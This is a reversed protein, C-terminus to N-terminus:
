ERYLYLLNEREVYETKDFVSTYPFYLQYFYGHALPRLYRYSVRDYTFIMLVLLLLVRQLAYPVKRTSKYIDYSVNVILLIFSPFLFDTMRITLNGYRRSMIMLLVFLFLFGRDIDDRKSNSFFLVFVPVFVITCFWVIWGVINYGGYIDNEIETGYHEIKASMVESTATYKLLLPLFGSAYSLVFGTVIFVFIWKWDLKKLIHFAPFVFCFIASLHFGLAMFCWFYYRLWKKNRLAPYGLLLMSVALAARLIGTNYYFFFFLAYILTAFFPWQTNKWFFWAFVSNVILAHVIQFVVFDSSISRCIASLLYWLPQFGESLDSFGYHWLESLSPYTEWFEMYYFSDGGLKYRLGALLIFAIYILYYVFLRGKHINAYDYLLMASLMMILVIIYEM